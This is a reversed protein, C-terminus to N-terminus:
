RNREGTYLKLDPPAQCSIVVMEGEQGNVTGHFEGPMVHVVDGAQIPFEQDDLRVVGRGQLVIIVDESEEHVHRTFAAGPPFVSYNLTVRRAGNHPGIVCRTDGVGMKFQKGETLKHIRM